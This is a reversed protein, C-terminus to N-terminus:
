EDDYHTVLGFIDIGEEYFSASSYKYEQPYNVLNWPESLPNNHIYILKQILVDKNWLDVSLPNREWFQYQRDSANVLYDQLAPNKTDILRFKMQQATYKLFRLQIKERTYNNQIHWILHIHNPMILFANVIISGEKKLFLLSDIIIQKYEDPRLLQKWELITATFFQPYHQYTYSSM